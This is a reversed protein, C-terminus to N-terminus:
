PKCVKCPVYGKARADAASSFWVENAPSIKKAWECSPRHYKDSNKSGVYLRTSVPATFKPSDPPPTVAPYVTTMPPLPTPSVYDKWIGNGNSKAMQECQDFTTAYKIDPPYRYAIAFGGTVIEANILRGDIWIYRLLRDYRDKDTTDKELTVKKGELLQIVCNRAEEYYAAGKEPSDIGILRVHDGNSLVVTDGDIVAQVTATSIGSPACGSLLLVASLVIGQIAKYITM